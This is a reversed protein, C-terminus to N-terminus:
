PQPKKKAVPTEIFMLNPVLLQNEGSSLRTRTLSIEEVKGTLTADSGIQINDGLEFSRPERNLITLGGVVNSLPGRLIFGVAMSTVSLSGMLGVLNVGLMHAIFVGALLYVVIGSSSVILSKLMPDKKSKRLLWATVVRAARSALWAGGGVALLQLWGASFGKWLRLTIWAAPLAAAVAWGWWPAKSKRAPQPQIPGDGLDPGLKLIANDIFLSNPVDVLTGDEQILRTRALSVNQVVGKYAAAAGVQIKQGIRFPKDAVISIMGAVNGFVGKLAFSAALTTVGLSGLLTPLDVGLVNAISGGAVLYVAYGSASVLFSKVLEDHKARKLLRAAVARTLRAVFWSGVALGAVVLWTSVPHGLAVYHMWKLSPEAAAAAVVAAAGGATASHAMWFRQKPVKPAPPQPAPTPEPTTEVEPAAALARLSASSDFNITRADSM